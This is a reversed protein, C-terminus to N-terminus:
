SQKATRAIAWVDVREFGQQKLLKALLNTTAGTTVVDDVIAIRPYQKAKHQASKHAEFSHRLNKQREGYNLGAQKQTAATKNLLNGLYPLSLSKGLSRALEASQNFGRQSLRRHHIPVAVLADPLCHCKGPQSSLWHNFLQALLPSLALQQQYKFRSIMPAIPFEFRLPAWVQHIADFRHCAGCYATASTHPLPEACHHCANRNWPLQELCHDCCNSHTVHFGCVMCRQQTQFFRKLDSLHYCTGTNNLNSM